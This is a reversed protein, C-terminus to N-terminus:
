PEAVAAEVIVAVILLTLGSQEENNSAYELQVVHCDLRRNRVLNVCEVQNITLPKFQELHLWNSRPSVM